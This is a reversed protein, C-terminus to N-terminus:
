ELQECREICRIRFGKVKHVTRNVPQTSDCSISRGRLKGGRAHTQVPQLSRGSIYRIIKFEANMADLLSRYRDKWEVLCCVCLFAAKGQVATSTVPYM